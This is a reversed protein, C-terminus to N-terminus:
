LKLEAGSISLLYSYDLYILKHNIKIIIKIKVYVYIFNIKLSLDISKCFNNM